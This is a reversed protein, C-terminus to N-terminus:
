RSSTASRKYPVECLIPLVEDTLLRLSGMAVEIPMGAWDTRIVFHDVGLQDRWDLLESLCEEPSGLVFRDSTLDDLPRIFSDHDPLVKDQGWSAYVGYKQALYPGALALAEARTPACFVERMLPLEPPDTLKGADLRAQRYIALQRAITTRTAHPNIFWSDALRAARKVAADSNAAMWLPPRPQQLPRLALHQRELHCWPLDVDVIDGRWLSLVVELNHEFREVREATNVGFAAYEVDRYGLGVGFILRGGSIVDLSAYTEAIEVPNLLALLSIGIGLRLEGSEAALRALFPIPQLHTFTDSLFHQGVIVSHWGGDRVARCLKLQDEFAKRVDAGVLAQNTIFLSARIHRRIDSM